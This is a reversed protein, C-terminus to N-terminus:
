VPLLKKFFGVIKEKASQKMYDGFLKKMHNTLEENYVNGTSEVMNKMAEKSLDQWVFPIEGLLEFDEITKGENYMKSLTGNDYKKFFSEDVKYKLLTDKTNPKLYYHCLSADKQTFSLGVALRPENTTNPPSAHFTRNDFILMEGAKMPLLKFYPFLSFLHKALPSPAQPSPSPRVSEFFHNSGEIVGLCGNQMDVDVLAIWCTVSCHQTEDEVFTWDQHPPVVGKPNPDKIVYSATILQYDQLYPAVKPMCVTEIKQMMEAVLNKNEHDMGVYFGYDTEKKIGSDFLFDKLTKIETENLAPLKIYGNKSFFSQHENDKFLPQMASKNIRKNYRDKLFEKESYTKPIYSFSKSLTGIEPKEIIEPYHLFMDDPMAYQHLENKSKDFYLMFLAADKPALGITLVLREENSKNPFSAHMLKQNFVFATGKKLPLPILYKEFNTRDKEFSVPLSPARFNNELHHSAPIVSIAGNDITTDQLPIWITFSGDKEEDTVTWDQHLPLPNNENPKKKLFSSGLIKFDSFHTNIKHELLAIIENNVKQKLAFDPHFSTAYFLTEQDQFNQYYINKVAAIMEEELFPMTFYGNNNLLTQLRNNNVKLM